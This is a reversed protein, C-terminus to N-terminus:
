GRKMKLLFSIPVISVEKKIEQFRKELVNLTERHPHGIAIAYGKEKAIKIAKDLQQSIIEEDLEHDLFVDRAFFKLRLQEAVDSAISNSSTRSDLFFMKREKIDELFIKMKEVNETFKSGMHNNAGIANPISELYFKSLKKIDENSMETTLFKTEGNNYKDISHPEMPVHVLIDKKMERGKKAFYLSYKLQPIISLTVNELNLVREGLEISNGIDDIVIVLKPKTDETLILYPVSIKDGAEYFVIDDKNVQFAIKDDYKKLEQGIINIIKKEKFVIKKGDEEHIEIIGEDKLKDLFKNVRDSLSPLKTIEDIKKTIVIDREKIKENYIRIFFIAGITIIILAILFLNLKKFNM